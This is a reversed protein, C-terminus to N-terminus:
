FECNSCRLDWEWFEFGPGIEKGRRVISGFLVSCLEVSGVRKSADRLLGARTGQVLGGTAFECDTVFCLERCVVKAEKSQNSPIRDEYTGDFGTRKKNNQSNWSHIAPNPM